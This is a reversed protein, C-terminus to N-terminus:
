VDVNIQEYPNPDSHDQGIECTCDQEKAGSQTEDYYFHTHKGAERRSQRMAEERDLREETRFDNLIQMLEQAAEVVMLDTIDDPNDPLDITFALSSYYLVIRNDELRETRVEAM